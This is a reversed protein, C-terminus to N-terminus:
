SEGEEEEPVVYVVERTSFGADTVATRLVEEDITSGDALALLVRQDEEMLVQVKKVGEINKLAKSMKRVCNDCMMGKVHVVVNPNDIGAEAQEASAQETKHKAKKDKVKAEDQALAGPAAAAFLLAILLLGTLLQNLRSM